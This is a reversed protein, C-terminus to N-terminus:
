GKVMKRRRLALAACGLVMLLASNPEPVAFSGGGWPVSVTSLPSGGSFEAIYQAANQSYLVESVGKLATGNDNYLEIIYGYAQGGLTGLSAYFGGFGDNMRAQMQSGSANIVNGYSTFGSEGFMGLNLYGLNEGSQSLAAIKVGSYNIPNSTQSDSVEGIMWYLYSDDAFAACSCFIALLLLSKRM